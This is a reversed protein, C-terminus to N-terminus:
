FETTLQFTITNKNEGTGGVAVEYDSELMYECSITIKDRYLHSLGLLIRNEAFNLAMAESSNQIAASLTFDQLTMFVELNLASPTAGAAPTAGTSLNSSHFATTASIYELFLGYNELTSKLSLNYGPVYNGIGNAVTAVTTLGDSDAINNLYSAAVTMQLDRETKYDYSAAIGYQNVRDTGAAAKIDGNFVFISLDLPGRGYSLMLGSESTEGLELTLPDSIMNTEFTGFPIYFRGLTLTFISHKITLFISDVGLPTEDEEYLIDITAVVDKEIETKITSAANPITFDGTTGTGGWGGSRRYEADIVGSYSIDMALAGRCCLTMVAVILLTNVVRNARFVM